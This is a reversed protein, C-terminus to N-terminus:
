AIIKLPLPMHSVSFRFDIGAAIFGFLFILASFAVVGKQTAEKEKSELRRKLLEPAKILLVTGLIFIPAFLLGLFVWGDTFCFTGASLFLFTGIILFGFIFKTLASIFLKM